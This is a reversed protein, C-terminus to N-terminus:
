WCDNCSCEGQRFHHFRAGDRLFIERNRVLSIYKAANHCDSCVRTNKIVRIPASSETKMLGYTIALKETHSLLVKEKDIEDINQYVCNIDPVYGLKKMESVLHYLEFYIEGTDPHPKGEATFVHVTEDIQIWSWVLGNKVGVNAMKDKLHEVDEWRDSMAYLNMMLVYNASNYPELEFLKNAAIEAFEINKHIRCSGLLAGWITADPELPMTQIFDWAEDLYGAKGLLDVMCSHHEITPTINYDARMSDFYNWGEDVLGSNKCASLLATFTIEDPQVGAGDMERFLSIAEKGHGNIAFGSIMCNWSALTKNVNNWFVERASKLNGCKSYMDIVATAVYVDEIFGNKISLCHIEKGKQLLGLGGCTRLLSSMTASNPNISEQQMQIFFELSERYNENKSCGSILSTWSVVNPVLGSNKMQHIVDLAEKNQGWISYGSILSNWTVLDPKVGEEEMQSLLKNADEFRGKFSYGSILSNWAVINRNKMIDFVVQASDLLDNKVYMDILSTEVYVEYDLRNRIVYGHIEKGYKVLGLEIVAQLVSAVSSANPRFGLSQMRHLITLIEKYWGHVVHGSLLSNWTIIDPEVNSSDMKNFLDRADKVYGLTTYSSIISNWSSLDHDKMSDFVIRALELKDNRSYMIILSNCIFLDSELAFKLVYGHLQKGEKLAGVKGCAQLMRVITRSNAEASSFQMERFLEIAKAWRENRLNMIIAENWLQDERVSVEDFVNNASDVCWCRGYFNMLACKLYMDFDFGRKILIAHVNLGLWSNMARTCIKLVITLIRSDFIVGKSNLERVVELVQRLEGGFDEYEDLFSNWEIYNRSFDVLFVRAASKFDGFELYCLILSKAVTDSNRNKCMKIMQAHMLEVSDLSTIDNTENFFSFTSSSFSQLSPSPSSAALSCADPLPLALSTSSHFTPKQNLSFSPHLPSNANFRHHHHFPTFKAAM